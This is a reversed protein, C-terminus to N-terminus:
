GMKARQAETAAKFELTRSEMKKENVVVSVRYKGPLHEAKNSEYMSLDVHQDIGPVDELFRPNFTGAYAPLTGAIMLALASQTFRSTKNGLPLHTWTM